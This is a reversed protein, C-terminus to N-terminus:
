GDGWRQQCLAAAVVAATEARLIRPGLGVTVFGADGAATAEHSAFGGEPGVVIVAATASAPLDAFRRTDEGEWAFLRLGPWPAALITALPCPRDVVPVATRGSQKAAAVALRHWRETHDGQGIAHQSGFPAIRRVGLETAKEIVLDLKRAKLLAPALVLDLASERGPHQTREIRARLSRTGLHTVVAVHEAGGGDFLVLRDGIALRRTRVHHLEEGAIEVTDGAPLAPLFLRLVTLGDHARAAARAM